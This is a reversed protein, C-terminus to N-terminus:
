RRAEAARADLDDFGVVAVDEPVRLGLSHRPPSWGPPSSTTTPWSRPRGTPGSCCSPAGRRDRVRRRLRGRRHGDGRPRDRAPGCRRPGARRPPPRLDPRRDRARLCGIARHGLALLHEMAADPGTEADLRVFPIRPQEYEVIVVPPAGPERMAPAPGQRRLLLFGDIAGERLAEVAADGRGYNDDILVVVHGAERRPRSRAACRGASSRTRSTASSWASRRRRGPGCRGRRPTRATASSARRRACRTPRRRRSGGARRARSARALGDDASVGARKAVDVSTVKRSRKSAAGSVPRPQPLERRHASAVVRPRRRARM